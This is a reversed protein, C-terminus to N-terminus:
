QVSLYVDFTRFIRRTVLSIGFSKDEANGGTWVGGRGQDM